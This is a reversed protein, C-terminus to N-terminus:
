LDLSMLARANATSYNSVVTVLAALWLRKVHVSAAERHSTESVIKFRM